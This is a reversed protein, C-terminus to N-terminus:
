SLEQGSSELSTPIRMEQTTIPKEEAAYDGLIDHIYVEQVLVMIIAIIPVALMLGLFGLFVGAIIQGLLVLVPPLKLSEAVLIPNVVQSQLFSTGYIILIIWGINQPAQVMGVAISPVLALIPGFNPIFSFVGALVGLAAAQELGVFMLGIWTAVGVFVMSLLTAELWRRLMLELRILIARVRHRYWLPFLKIMGELYTDPEALFYLTLFVIVIFSLLVNAVGGVISGASEGVQGVFTTIQRAIENIAAPDIRFNELYPQIDRLIPYQQQLEGSNWSEVLRNIGSPITVTALTSFQDLLTPLAVLILMGLVIMTAALSLFIAPTRPVGRRVLLRIPITFGVVMIVALLALLLITRVQWLFYLVGFVVTAIILWRATESISASKPSM